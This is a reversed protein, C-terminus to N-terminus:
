RIGMHKALLDYIDELRSDINSFQSKLVLLEANNEKSQELALEASKKVEIIQNARVLQVIGFAWGGITLMGTILTTIIFRTNGNISKAPDAM